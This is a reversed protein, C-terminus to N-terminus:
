GITTITRAEGVGETNSGQHEDIVVLSSQMVVIVRPRLLHCRVLRQVLVPVVVGPFIIGVRVDFSLDLPAFDYDCHRFPSQVEPRPLPDEIPLEIPPSPLPHQHLDNPLLCPM